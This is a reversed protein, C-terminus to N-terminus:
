NKSRKKSATEVIKDALEEIQYMVSIPDSSFYRKVDLEIVEDNKVADLETWTAPLDEKKDSRVTALVYDGIYDGIVEHSIEYSGGSSKETDYKKQVNKQPKMDLVQFLARGGNVSDNGVVFASKENIGLISFTDDESIVENIKTKAKETRRDFEALFKKAEENRNLYKGMATIEEHVTKYKAESFVITPAIKSYREVADKDWTIILDPNVDVLKELSAKTDGIDSIDGDNYYNKLYLSYDVYRMDAGVPVVDLSLVQGVFWDTAIREPKEPIEVKRGADDTITITKNKTQVVNEKNETLTTEGTRSSCAGLLLIFCLLLTAVMPTKIKRYMPLDNGEYYQNHNDDECISYCQMNGNVIPSISRNYICNSEKKNAIMYDKFKMPTMGTHKKFIRSFYFMDSYGIHEAIEQLSANTSTLLHQAKKIRIQVLFAIPSMGIQKKFKRSLYRTSYNLDESISDLTIQESYRDHLYRIAQTVIDPKSLEINQHNLQWLLDHVFQYLLTKTHLKELMGGVVWQQNMLEVKGLLSLPYQPSFNYQSQFINENDILKFIRKESYSPITAKYIILYYEFSDGAMIDLYMGKGGHFVHFREVIQVVGDIWVQASGNIGYLFTSSPLQYSLLKEEHKMNVYRVDLVKISTRNWLLIHDDIKM